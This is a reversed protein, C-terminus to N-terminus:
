GWSRDIFHRKYRSTIKNCDMLIFVDAVSFVADLYPEGCIVAGQRIYAKLLTPMIVDESVATPTLKLPLLPRVRLEQEAYHRNRIVHM